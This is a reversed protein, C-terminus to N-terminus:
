RARSTRGQHTISRSATATSQGYRARKRVVTSARCSTWSGTGEPLRQFVLQLPKDADDGRTFQLSRQFLGLGKGFRRIVYDPADEKERQAQQGKQQDQEQQQPAVQQPRQHADGPVKGAQAVAHLRLGDGGDADGFQLFHHVDHM